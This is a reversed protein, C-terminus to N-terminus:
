KRFTKGKRLRRNKIEKNCDENKGEKIGKRLVEM